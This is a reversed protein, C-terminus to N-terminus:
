LKEYEMVKKIAILWKDYQRKVEEKPLSSEFYINPKYIREIEKEDKFIKNELASMYFAGMTTLESELEKIVKLDLISAQFSMLFKNESAKGDVMMKLIKINEEKEYETTIDKVSFAIGKLLAKTIDDKSTNLKLGFIAGKASSWYPTTLGAFSQVVILEDDMSSFAKEESEKVDNIINLNDKLWSIASGAVLIAGEKAYTVCNNRVWAITDILKSDYSEIGNGNNILLFCGTGYTTKMEGKSFCRSGFLAAQQDGLITNIKIKNNKHKFYGFVNDSSYIPPLYKCDIGFLDLLEEDYCLNHINYLMTRSANTHDTKIEGTLMFLLYVDITGFVVDDNIENKNMLHKIKSASFYPSIYLGTKNKVLLTYGLSIWENIIYSTHTAQWSIAKSLCKKTKKDFMVITERQNTIAISLIEFDDTAILNILYIIDKYILYADVLIEGNEYHEQVVKRSESKVIKGEQNVLSVKTSTTGQDIILICKIKTNM